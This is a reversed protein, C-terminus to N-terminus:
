LGKIEKGSKWLDKIIVVQIYINKVDYRLYNSSSSKPLRSIGDKVCTGINWGRWCLAEETEGM